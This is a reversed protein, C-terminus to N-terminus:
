YLFSNERMWQIFAASTMLIERKEKNAAATFCFVSQLEKPCRKLYTFWASINTRNIKMVAGYAM